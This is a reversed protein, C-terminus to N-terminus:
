IKGDFVSSHTNVGITLSAVCLIKSTNTTYLCMNFATLTNTTTSAASVPVGNSGRSVVNCKVAPILM